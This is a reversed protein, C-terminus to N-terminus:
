MANGRKPTTGKEERWGAGLEMRRKKWEGQLGKIKIKDATEDKKLVVKEVLRRGVLVFHDAAAFAMQQRRQLLRKNNGGFQSM